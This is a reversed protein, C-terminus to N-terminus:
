NYEKKFILSAFNTWYDNGGGLEQIKITFDDKGLFSRKEACTYMCLVAYMKTKESCTHMSLAAYMEKM